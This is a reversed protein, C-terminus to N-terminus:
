QFKWYRSLRNMLQGKIADFEELQLIVSETKEDHFPIQNGNIGALFNNLCKPLADVNYGGELAAFIRGAFRERLLQGIEFYCGMSLNLKLLLDNKYGDFGASVAVTDPSFQEAIQMMMRVASLYIDDGTGPSLPVNVTFGKGDGEGIDDLGGGGPYAPSQHLSIYLVNKSSYFFEETGDGLHSDIDLILIRKGSSVLKQVAIAINNFICFGGARDPHAHHGPPRVLAFDMSESAMVAAGVAHTAARYTGPSLITDADLRITQSSLSKIKQLYEKTHFLELYEEGDEIETEPMKGFISLRKENEPHIGTDHQLFIRNFLLKM